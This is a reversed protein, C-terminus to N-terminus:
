DVNGVTVTMSNFGDLSAILNSSRAEPGRRSGSIAKRETRQHGKSHGNRSKHMHTAARRESITSVMVVFKYRSTNSLIHILTGPGGSFGLSPQCGTLSPSAHLLDKWRRTNFGRNLKLDSRVCDVDLVVYGLLGTNERELSRRKACHGSVSKNM